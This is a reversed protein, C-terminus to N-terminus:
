WKRIISELVNLTGVVNTTFTDHPNSYSTKVIPQAAMHFVIEPREKEFIEYLAERNRIDLIIHKIKSALKLDEFMSPKTPIDKSIGVVEAGMMTLWLTLWTGKFGTHGTVLVKKNKYHGIMM